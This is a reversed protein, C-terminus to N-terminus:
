EAHEIEKLLAKGATIMNRIKWKLNPSLIQEVSVKEGDSNGARKVLDIWDGVDMVILTQLFEPKRPNRIALAGMNGTTMQRELQEFDKILNVQEANKCELEINLTPCRLDNKDISNGSGVIEYAKPDLQERFIKILHLVLRRGKQRKAKADM